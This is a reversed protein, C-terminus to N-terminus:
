IAHVDFKDAGRRRHDDGESPGAPLPLHVTAIVRTTSAILAPRV